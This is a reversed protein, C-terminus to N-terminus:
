RFHQQQKRQYEQYRLRELHWQERHQQERHQQERHQRHQHHQHRHQQQQQHHQHHQHHHYQRHQELYQRRRGEQPAIHMPENTSYIARKPVSKKEDIEKKIYDYGCQMCLIINSSSALTNITITTSNLNFGIQCESCESKLSSTGCEFCLDDFIDSVIEGEEISVKCRKCNM